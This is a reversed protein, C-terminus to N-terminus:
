CHGELETFRLAEQLILFFFGVVGSQLGGELTVLKSDKSNLACPVYPKAYSVYSDSRHYM